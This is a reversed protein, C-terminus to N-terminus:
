HNTSHLVCVTVPLQAIAWLQQQAGNVLICAHLGNSYEIFRLAAATMCGSSSPCNLM